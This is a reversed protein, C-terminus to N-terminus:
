VHARGIEPALCAALRHAGDMLVGGRGVPVPGLEARYGDRAISDLLADFRCLFNGIGAKNSGYERAGNFALMHATYLHTAYLSDVGLRRHKAYIYPAMVDMRGPHLLDRPAVTRVSYPADGIRERIIPALRDLM